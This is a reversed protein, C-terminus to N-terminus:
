RSVLERETMRMTVVKLESQVGHIANLLGDFRSMFNENRAQVANLIQNPGAAVNADTAEEECVNANANTDALLAFNSPPPDSKASEEVQQAPKPAM